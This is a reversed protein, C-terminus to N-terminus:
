ERTESRQRQASESNCTQAESMDELTDDEGEDKEEGNLSVKALEKATEGDDDDDEEEESDNDDEGDKDNSAQSDEERASTREEEDLFPHALLQKATSREEPKWKLMSRMFDVFQTSDEGDFATVKEELQIVPLASGKWIGEEDWFRLYEESRRLFNLPPPGLLSTMQALYWEDADEEGEHYGFVYDRQIAWWIMIGAAWIDVPPGWQMGLRIEPPRYPEPFLGCHDQLGSSSIPRVEGLDTLIAQGWPIEKMHAVIDISPYTYREDKANYKAPILISRLHTAVEAFAANNTAAFLVNDVKIDAHIAKVETHMFDLAMLVAKMVEKLLENTSHDGQKVKKLVEDLATIAPQYIFCRHVIGVPSTMEFTDELIRLFQVGDHETKMGGLRRYFALESDTSSEDDSRDNGHAACVKVTAYGDNRNLDANARCDKSSSAVYETDHCLWVTSKSGYGLKGLVEYRENLSEGLRVPYFEAAVYHPLREEEIPKDSGILKINSPPQSM